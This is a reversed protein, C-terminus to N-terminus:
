VVLHDALDDAQACAGDEINHILEVLKTVVPMPVGAKAGMDVMVGLQAELQKIAASLTPQTIGLEEAAKGFHRMRALAIFFELKDIM